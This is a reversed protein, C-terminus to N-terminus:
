STYPPEEVQAEYGVLNPPLYGDLLTWCKFKVSMIYTLKQDKEFKLNQDM